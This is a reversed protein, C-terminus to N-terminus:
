PISPNYNKSNKQAKKYRVEKWQKFFYLNKADIERNDFTNRKELIHVKIKPEEPTAYTFLAAEILKMYKKDLLSTQRLFGKNIYPQDPKFNPAAKMCEKLIKKPDSMLKSASVKVESIDYSVPILEIKNGIKKPHISISQYGLSSILVRTNLGVMPIYLQFDGEKNSITGKTTEAVSINAFPIAKQSEKDIIKSKVQIQAQVNTLFIVIILSTSLIAKM